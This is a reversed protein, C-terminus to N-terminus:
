EDEQCQNFVNKEKEIELKIIEDLQNNEATEIKDFNM